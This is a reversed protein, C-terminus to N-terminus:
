GKAILGGTEIPGTRKKLDEEAKLWDLEPSGIPCGRRQWYEYAVPAIQNTNASTEVTATRNQDVGGKRAARVSERPRLGRVPSAMIGGEVKGVLIFGENWFCSDL